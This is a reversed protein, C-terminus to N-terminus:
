LWKDEEYYLEQVSAFEVEVRVGYWYGFLERVQALEIRPVNVGNLSEELGSNFHAAAIFHSVFDDAIAEMEDQADVIDLENPSNPLAKLISFGVIRTKHTNSIDNGGYRAETPELIVAPSQLASPTNSKLLADITSQAFHCREASHLIERHAEALGALLNVVEKHRFKRM